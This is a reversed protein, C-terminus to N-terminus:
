PGALTTVLQPYVLPGTAFPPLSSQTFAEAIYDIDGAGGTGGVIAAMEGCDYIGPDNALHVIPQCGSSMATPIGTVTDATDGSFSIITPSYPSSITNNTYRVMRVEAYYKDFFSVVQVDAPADVSLGFRVVASKTMFGLHAVPDIWYLAHLYPSVEITGDECQAQKRVTVEIYVNTPKPNVNVYNVWINALDFEVAVKNNLTAAGYVGIGPPGENYLDDPWIVFNSFANPCEGGDEFEGDNEGRIRLLYDGGYQADEDHVGMLVDVFGDGTIDQLLPRATNFPMPASAVQGIRVITRELPDNGFTPPAFGYGGLETDYILNHLIWIRHASQMSLALDWDGDFDFDGADAGVVGIAGLDVPAESVSSGPDVYSHLTVIENGSSDPAILALKDLTQTVYPPNRAVYPGVVAMDHQTTSALQYWLVAGTRAHVRVGLNSRAAIELGTYGADNRWQIPQIEAILTGQTFSSDLVFTGTATGRYVLVTLQNSSVAAIDQLGDANFDACAISAANAAASTNAIASTSFAITNDSGDFQIACLGGPAGAVVRDLVGAEIDGRLVGFATPEVGLDYVLDTTAPAHAYLLKDGREIVAGMGSYLTLYAAEARGFPGAGFSPPWEYAKGSATLHPPNFGSQASASAAALVALAVFIPAQKWLMSRIKHTRM